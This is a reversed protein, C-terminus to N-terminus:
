LCGDIGRDGVIRREPVGAALNRLSTVGHCGSRDDVVSMAFRLSLTDLDARIIDELDAAHVDLIELRERNESFQASSSM